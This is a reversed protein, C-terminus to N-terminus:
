ALVHLGAMQCNKDKRAVRTRTPLLDGLGQLEAQEITRAAAM